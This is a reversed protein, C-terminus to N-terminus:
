PVVVQHSLSRLNLQSSIDVLKAIILPAASTIKVTIKSMTVQRDRRVQSLTM